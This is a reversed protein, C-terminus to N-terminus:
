NSIRGKSARAMVELSRALQDYSAAVDQLKKKANSNTLSEAEARLDAARKRYGKLALADEDM